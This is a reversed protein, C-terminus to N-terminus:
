DRPIRCHDPLNINNNKRHTASGTLEKLGEGLKEMPTGKRPRIIPKSCRYANTNILSCCFREPFLWVLNM